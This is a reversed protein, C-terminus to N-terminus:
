KIITELIERLDQMQQSTIKEALERHRKEAIELVRPKLSEGAETLSVICCKYSVPDTDVLGKKSLAQVSRSIGAKDKCLIRSIEFQQVPGHAYLVRLILYEAPTIGLGQEALATGLRAIETQYAIGLLCGINPIGYTNNNTTMDVM